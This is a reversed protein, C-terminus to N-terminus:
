PRPNPKAGNAPVLLFARDEGNHNGNGVIWGNDNIGVAASLIWGSGAPIMDNLDHLKRDIWVLARSGKYSTAKPWWDGVAIEHNNLAIASCMGPGPSGLDHMQGHTWLFANFRGAATESTGVVASSDNMGLASSTAGGLTGLDRMRGDEWLFAHLTRVAFDSSGAIQGSSNIAAPQTETGRGPSIDTLKGEHWLYTRRVGDAGLSDLVVQGRDNVGLAESYRADPFLRVVKGAKWMVATPPDLDARGGNSAHGVITGESNVGAPVGVSKGQLTGLDQMKGDQWIYVSVAGPRASKGVIQGTSNIARARTTGGFTGIDQISYIIQERGQHLGVSDTAPAIQPVVLTGRPIKLMSGVATM